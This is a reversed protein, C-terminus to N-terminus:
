AGARTQLFKVIGQVVSQPIFGGFGQRGGAFNGGNGASGSYAGPTRAARPTGQPPTFTGGNPSFGGGGQGPGGITIGAQQLAAFIDQRSINMAAISQMQAPTMANEILQVQAAVKQLTAADPRAAPTGQGGGQPAAGTELQQLSQWLPLLQAAQQATVADSTGDLKIIGAVLELASPGAAPTGGVPAAVSSGSSSASSSSAGVGNSQAASAGSGCATLVLALISMSAFGIIKKM